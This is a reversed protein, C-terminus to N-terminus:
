LRPVHVTEYMIVSNQSFPNDSIYKEATTIDDCVIVATVGCKAGNIGRYFKQVLVSTKSVSPEGNLKSELDEIVDAAVACDRYVGSSNVRLWSCLHSNNM